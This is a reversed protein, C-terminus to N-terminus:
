IHILSLALAAGIAVYSVHWVTYPLHLLSVFDARRSGTRAYFAARDNM